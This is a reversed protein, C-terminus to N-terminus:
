ILNSKSFTRDQSHVARGGGSVALAIDIDAALGNREASQLSFIITKGEGEICEPPLFDKCRVSQSTITIVSSM